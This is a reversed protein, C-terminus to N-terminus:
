HNTSPRRVHKMKWGTKEQIKVYLEGIMKDGALGFFLLKDMRTTIAAEMLADHLRIADAKNKCFIIELEDYSQFILKNQVVIIQMTFNKKRINKLLIEKIIKKIDFRNKLPNYGFVWFTEEIQYPVRDIIVWKDNGSIEEVLKGYENRVIRNKDNEDREKILLLEYKVPIIGRYNVFKQPFSVNNEKIIQRFKNIAFENSRCKYLIKRLKKNKTLIVRYEM